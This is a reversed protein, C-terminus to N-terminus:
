ARTAAFIEDCVYLVRGHPESRMNGLVCGVPSGCDITAGGTVRSVRHGLLDSFSNLFGDSPDFGDAGALFKAVDVLGTVMGAEFHFGRDVAEDFDAGVLLGIKRM